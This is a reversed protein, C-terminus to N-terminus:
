QARELQEAIHALREAEDVRRQMLEIRDAMRVANVRDRRAQEEAAAAVRRWHLEADGGCECREASVFEANARIRAAEAIAADARLNIVNNQRVLRGVESELASSTMKEKSLEKATAALQEELDAIRARDVAAQETLKAVRGGKATQVAPALGDDPEASLVAYRDGGGVWDLYYAQWNADNFEAQADGSLDDVHVYLDYGGRRTLVLKTLEWWTRRVSWLRRSM